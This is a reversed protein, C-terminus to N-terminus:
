RVANCAEAAEASAARVVVPPKGAHQKRLADPYRLSNIGAGLIAMPCSIQSGILDVLRPQVRQDSGADQSSRFVVLDHPKRANFEIIETAPEGQRIALEIPCDAPSLDVDLWPLWSKVTLPSREAGAAAHGSKTFVHLVSLTAFEAKALQWAFRFVFDLDPGYTVPLLIRRVPKREALSLPTSRGLVWVPVDVLAPVIRELAPVHKQGPGRSASVVIRDVQFSRVLSPIESVSLNNLVFARSVVEAWMITRGTDACGADVDAIWPQVARRKDDPESSGDDIIQALLIKAGPQEAHRISFLVQAPDDSPRMIVLVTRPSCWRRFAKVSM